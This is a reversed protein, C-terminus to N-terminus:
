SWYLFNDRGGPKSDAGPPLAAPHMQTRAGLPPVNPGTPSIVRSGPKSYTGPLLAAPQLKTDIIPLQVKLEASSIARGGPKNYAGLPWATTQMTTCVTQQQFNPGTSSIARGGPKSNAGSPLAKVDFTQPFSTLSTHYILLHNSQFTLGAHAHLVAGDGLGLAQLPLSADIIIAAIIFGTEYPMKSNGAIWEAYDASCCM